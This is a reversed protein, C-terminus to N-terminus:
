LNKGDFLSFQSFNHNLALRENLLAYTYQVDNSYDFSFLFRGKNSVIYDCALNLFIIKGGNESESIDKTRNRSVLWTHSIAFIVDDEFLHPTFIQMEIEKVWMEDIYKTKKGKGIYRTIVGKIANSIFLIEDPLNSYVIPTPLIIRCLFRYRANFDHQSLIYSINTEDSIKKKATADYLKVVEFLDTLDKQIKALDSVVMNTLIFHIEISRILFKPQFFFYGEKVIKREKKPLIKHLNDFLRKSISSNSGVQFALYCIGFIEYNEFLDIAIKEISNKLDFYNRIEGSSIYECEDILNSLRTDGQNKIIDKPNIWQVLFHEKLMHNILEPYYDKSYANPNTFNVLHIIPHPSILDSGYKCSDSIDNFQIEWESEFLNFFLNSCFKIIDSRDVSDNDIRNDSCNFREYIDYMDLYSFIYNLKKNDVYLTKEGFASSISMNGRGGQYFFCSTEENLPYTSFIRKGAWYKKVSELSMNTAINM